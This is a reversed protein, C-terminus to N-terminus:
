SASPSDSCTWTTVWNLGSDIQAYSAPAVLAVYLLLLLALARGKHIFTTASQVSGITKRIITTM